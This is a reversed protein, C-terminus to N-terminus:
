NTGSAQLLLYQVVYKITSLNAAERADSDPNKRAITIMENMIEYAPTYYFRARAIIHLATHELDDFLRHGLHEIEEDVKAMITEKAKPNKEFYTKEFDTANTLSLAISSRIYDIFNKKLSMESQYGIMSVYTNWGRIYDAAKELIAQAGYVRASTVLMGLLVEPSGGKKLWDQYIERNVVVRKKEMNFEVVLINSSFSQKLREIQQLIVTAYFIEMQKLGDDLKAQTISNFVEPPNTKFNLVFLYCATALNLSDYPNMSAIGYKSVVYGRSEEYQATKSFNSQFVRDLFDPTFGGLWKKIENDLRENSVSTLSTLKEADVPKFNIATEPESLEVNVSYQSLGYNVFTEDLVFAPFNGQDITFESTPDISKMRDVATKLAEHFEVFIPRVVNRATSLHSLIYPKLEEAISLVLASHKSLQSYVSTVCEVTQAMDGATRSANTSGSAHGNPGVMIMQMPSATGLQYDVAHCESILESLASGDRPKLFIGQNALQEAQDLARQYLKANIM